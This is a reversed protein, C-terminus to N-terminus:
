RAVRFGKTEDYLVDAPARVEAPEAGILRLPNYFGLARLAALDYGCCRAVVNMCELITSTSGVLYGTEPNFLRGGPELIVDNGLVRHRGPPLGAAPSADSVVISREIGKARFMVSLVGTPLHHGDAVVMMSLRDEALGDWIPNPYRPLMLPVGNGLHTLARAGAEAARALAASDALHHGLSVTIGMGVAHAILEEVGELGAAVTLLRIKGRAWDQMRDLLEADPRRVWAPNHAGVAGPEPSIFPGEVHFGLLRGRFEPEDLLGAMLTLNREYTRPESTIMTPLFAATGRSLVTRCAEAFSEGRLEPDSFDVGGLGNVQLDVFGTLKM